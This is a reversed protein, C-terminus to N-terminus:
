LINGDGYYALYGLSGTGNATGLAYVRQITAGPILSFGAGYASSASVALTPGPIPLAIYSTLTTCGTSGNGAYDVVRAYITTTANIPVTATIGTTKFVTNTGNGLVSTSCGGDSYLNVTSADASTSTGLVRPTTSTNSSTPTTSMFGPANPPTTDVMLATSVCSSTTHNGANDVSDVKFSYSTGNIGTFNKLQPNATIAVSSATPSGTCDITAYVLVSQSALDSATSKSWQASLSTSAIANTNAGCIGSPCSNGSASWTLASAASPATNDLVASAHVVDSENGAADRAQVHIYYTGTGSSQSTSTTSDFSSSPSTSAFTDITYRYDCPSTSCNTSGSWSWSKTMKVSPDDSLGSVSPRSGTAGATHTKTDSVANGAVDHAGSAAITIDRGNFMNGSSWTLAYTNDSVLSVSTPNAALTGKGTGSLVYNAPTTVGEGMAESFTVNIALGSQGAVSNLLPATTDPAVAVPLIIEIFLTITVSGASNTATITYATPPQASLPTGSIIGLSPDLTM